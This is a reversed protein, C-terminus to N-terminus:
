KSMLEQMIQYALSIRDENPYNKNALIVIGFKLSPVFAVYGGFGNTSGTKNVLAEKLPDLPPIIGTVRHPKYVLDNSNGALVKELTVPYPYQEWIMDQTMPGTNFYSTRTLSLADQVEKSLSAVGMNADLFLLIDAASSKVGYAEDSLVANTMRAPKDNKTYGQAYDSQRDQPVDIFTNLLGFKPLLRHELLEKYSTGMTKATIYGLMGISPNAYTRMTGVPYAPKWSQLYSILQNNNKIDDPVQLPFGGATHTALHYLEVNGFATGAMEPLYKSVKDTLRLQGEQQAVSAAAVTFTKSISGLEFLTSDTVPSKTVKSVVGYNLVYKKGEYTIGIAMGPISQRKMVANVSESIADKMESLSHGNSADAYGTSLPMLLSVAILSGYKYM